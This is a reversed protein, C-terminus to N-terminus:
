ISTLPWCWPGFERVVRLSFGGHELQIPRQSSWLAPRYPKSFFLRKEGTWIRVGSPGARLRTVISIQIPPNLILGAGMRCPLRFISLLAATGTSAYQPSKESPRGRRFDYDCILSLLNFRCINNCYILGTRAVDLRSKLSTQHFWIQNTTLRMTTLRENRYKCCTNFFGYVARM